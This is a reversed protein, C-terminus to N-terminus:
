QASILAVTLAACFVVYVSGAAFSLAVTRCAASLGPQRISSLMSRRMEDNLKTMESLAEATSRTMTDEQGMTPPLPRPISARLPSVGYTARHEARFGPAGLARGQSKRMRFM